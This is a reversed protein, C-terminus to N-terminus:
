RRNGQCIKSCHVEDRVVRGWELQVKETGHCTSRMIKEGLAPVYYRTTQRLDVGQQTASPLLVSLFISDRIQRDFVVKITHTHAKRTSSTRSRTGTTSASPMRRWRQRRFVDAMSRSIHLCDFTRLQPRLVRCSQSKVPLARPVFRGL